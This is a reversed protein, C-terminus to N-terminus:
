SMLWSFHWHTLILFFTYCCKMKMKAPKGTDKGSWRPSLNIGWASSVVLKRQWDLEVGVDSGVDLEITWEVVVM